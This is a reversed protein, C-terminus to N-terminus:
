CGLYYSRGHPCEPEAFVNFEISYKAHSKQNKRRILSALFIKRKENILKSPTQPQYAAKVLISVDGLSLLLELGM